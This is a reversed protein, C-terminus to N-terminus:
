NQQTRLLRYLRQKEKWITTKSEPELVPATPVSVSVFPSITPRDKIEQMEFGTTIRHKDMMSLSRTVPTNVTDHKCDPDFCLVHIRSHKLNLCFYVRNSAHLRSRYICYRSGRGKVTIIFSRKKADVSLKHIALHQYSSHINQIAHLLAQYGAPFRACDVIVTNKRRQIGKVVSREATFMADSQPIQDHEDGMDDPRHFGNTFTGMCSPTISMAILVSYTDCTSMPFVLGDASRLTGAYTYVSADVRRGNFCTCSSSLQMRFLNETETTAGPRRRKESTTKHKTGVTCIPCDIMKYSFCPRLTANSFRYSAPDVISSWIPFLNSIRTDLLQAILKMTETTTVISPFVVHIGWALEIGAPSRRQKRKRSCTAIHMVITGLSPFCEQVTRYMVRLHLMAHDWTPLPTKTTRYDLEFFLRIGECNHAVEADTLVCGKDIDVAKTILSEKYAAHSMFVSGGSLFTSRLLEGRKEQINLKGTFANKWESKDFPYKNAIKEAERAEELVVENYQLNYIETTTM